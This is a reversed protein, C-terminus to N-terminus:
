TIRRERNSPLSVSSNRGSSGVGSLCRVNRKLPDFLEAAPREVLEDAEDVPGSRGGDSLAIMDIWFTGTGGRRAELVVVVAVNGARSRM